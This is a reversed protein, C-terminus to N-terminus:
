RQVSVSMVLLAMSAALLVFHALMSRRQILSGMPQLVLAGSLYVMRLPQFGRAVPLWGLWDAVCLVFLAVNLALFGKTVAGSHRKFASLWTPATDATTGM